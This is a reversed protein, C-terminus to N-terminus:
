FLGSSVSPENFTNVFYSNLHSNPQIGLIDANNSTGNKDNPLSPSKVNYKYESSTLDQM